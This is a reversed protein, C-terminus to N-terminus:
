YENPPISDFLPMPKDKAPYFLGVIIWTHPHQHVTGVYFHTDNREIMETEYRNRFASEWDEGYEKSWRRWSEGMEWDTCKYTHGKCTQEDCYFRYSFDFPV